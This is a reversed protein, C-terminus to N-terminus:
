ISKIILLDSLYFFFFFVSVHTKKKNKHISDCTVVCVFSTCYSHRHKERGICSVSSHTTTNNNSTDQQTDVNVVVLPHHQPTHTHEHAHTYHTNTHQPSDHRHHWTMPAHTPNTLEDDISSTRTTRLSTQFRRHRQKHTQTDITRSGQPVSQTQLLLLFYFYTCVYYYWYNSRQHLTGGGRHEGGIYYLSQMQLIAYLSLPPVVTVSTYVTM